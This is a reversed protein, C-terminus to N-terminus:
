RKAPKASIINVRKGSGKFMSEALVKAKGGDSADVEVKTSTGGVTLEVVYKM